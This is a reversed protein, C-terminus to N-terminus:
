SSRMAMRVLMRRFFHFAGSFGLAPSQRVTPVASFGHICGTRPFNTAPKSVPLAAAPPFAWFSTCAWAKRASATDRVARGSRRSPREGCTYRRGPVSATETYPLQRINVSDPETQSSIRLLAGIRGGIKKSLYDFGKRTLSYHTCVSLPKSNVFRNEGEFRSILVRKSCVAKSRPM